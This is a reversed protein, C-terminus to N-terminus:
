YGCVYGRVPASGGDSQPGQGRFPPPLGATSTHSGTPLRGWPATMSFSPVPCEGVVRWVDPTDHDTRKAHPNLEQREAGAPFRHSPGPRPFATLFSRLGIRTRYAHITHGPQTGQV